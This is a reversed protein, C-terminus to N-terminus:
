GPLHHFREHAVMAFSPLTAGCEKCVEGMYNEEGESDWAENSFSNRQSIRPADEPATGAAGLPSHSSIETKIHRIDPEIQRDAPKDNPPAVDVDAIKWDKLVDEQRRLMRAIDRGAGIKGNAATMSMNTACINVLSLNWGSKEPHLKRFLPLLAEEVLKEALFVINQTLSLVSSPM